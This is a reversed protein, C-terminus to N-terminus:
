AVLESVDAVFVLPCAPRVLSSELFCGITVANDPMHANPFSILRQKELCHVGSFLVYKEFAHIKTMNKLHFSVLNPKLSFM